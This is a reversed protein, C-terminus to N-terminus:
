SSTSNMHSHPAATSTLLLGRTLAPCSSVYRFLTPNDSALACPIGEDMLKYVVADEVHPHLGLIENSIPCCEICLEQAKKAEKWGAKMEPNKEKIERKKAESSLHVKLKCMDLLYKKEKQKIAYCHAIRKAGLDLAVDLNGNPDTHSEGAHFLFPCHINNSKCREQFDQLEEKFFFLPNDANEPGIIDFGAM